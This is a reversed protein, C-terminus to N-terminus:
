LTPFGTAFEPNIRVELRTTMDLVHAQVLSRLRPLIVHEDDDGTSMRIRALYQELLTNFGSAAAEIYPKATSVVYIYGEWIVTKGERMTDDILGDILTFDVGDYLLQKELECVTVPFGENLERLKEIVNDTNYQQRNVVHRSRSSSSM